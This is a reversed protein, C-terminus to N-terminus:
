QRSLWLRVEDASSHWATIIHVEDNGDDSIVTIIGVPSLGIHKFRVPNYNDQLFVLTSDSTM